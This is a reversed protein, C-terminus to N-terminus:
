CSLFFDTLRTIAKQGDKDDPNTVQYVHQLKPNFQKDFKVKVGQKKLFKYVDAAQFEAVVDMISTFIITPPYEGAEKYLDPFNLFGAYPQEKYDKGVFLKFYVGMLGKPEIDPVPSVLGVGKISLDASVTEYASRLKSSKILCPMWAALQGGASDGTIFVRNPDAPYEGIHEGIYSLAAMCDQVMTKLSGEPAFRYSVNFVVFGCRALYLCYLKNLEKDGYYWGGGHIDIIVPLKAGSPTGEPVYVDLQHLKNGDDIYSINDYEDLDNPFTKGALRKDDAAKTAKWMVMVALEMPKKM